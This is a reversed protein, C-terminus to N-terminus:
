EHRHPACVVQVPCHARHLCTDAVSGLLMRDFAGLGRSGVVLLAAGRSAEVLRDGPSGHVVTITVDARDPLTERVIAEIRQSAHTQLDGAPPLAWGPFDELLDPTTLHWVGVVDLRTQRADAEVAGRALARRSDESGDVGVVVHAGPGGPRGRVVTVPVPSHHVVYSSTSGVLLRRVSGHGRDGVVIQDATEAAGLLAAGAPGEVLTTHVTLGHGDMRDLATRPIEHATQRAVTYLDVAVGPVTLGTPPLPTQWAHVLRLGFGHLRATDAAWDVARDAAVSGDIGVVVVPTSPASTDTM